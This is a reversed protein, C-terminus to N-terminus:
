RSSGKELGQTIAVYAKQCKVRHVAHVTLGHHAAIDKYTKTSTYIGIVVDPSLNRRKHTGKQSKKTFNFDNHNDQVLACRVNWEAYPGCDGERAMVYQGTRSGRKKRWDSGLHSVWWVEWSEYTFEWGIGRQAANKMQVRYAEQNTYKYPKRM